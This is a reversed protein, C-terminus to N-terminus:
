EDTGRHVGPLLDRREHDAEKKKKELYADIVIEALAYLEDRLTELQKDTLRADDGLLRRCESLPLM